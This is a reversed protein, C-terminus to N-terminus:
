HKARGAAQNSGSVSAVIANIQWAFAWVFYIGGCQVGDFLAARQAVAALDAPSMQCNGDSHTHITPLTEGSETRCRARVDYIERQEGSVERRTREIVIRQSGEGAAELRWKDVCFLVEHRRAEARYARRQSALAEPTWDIVTVSFPLQQGNAATPALPWVCLVAPVVARRLAQQVWLAGTAERLCPTVM